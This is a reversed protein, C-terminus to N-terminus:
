LSFFATWMCYAIFTVREAVAGAMITASAGCFAWTWLFLQWDHRGHTRTIVGYMLKCVNSGDLDQVCAHSARCGLM